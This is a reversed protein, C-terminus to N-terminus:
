HDWGESPKGALPIIRMFDIAKALPKSYDTARIPACRVIIFCTTSRLFRLHDSFTSVLRHANKMLNRDVVFKLTISRSDCTAVVIHTLLFTQESVEPVM